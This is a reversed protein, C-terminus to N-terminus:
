IRARNLKKFAVTAIIGLIAFGILLGFVYQHGLALGAHKDLFYGMLPAMFVDPLYGVVSALGVVTGTVALPIKAEGMIAFYLGRMAYVGLCSSSVVILILAYSYSEAPPFVMLLGGLIM